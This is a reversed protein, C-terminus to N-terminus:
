EFGMENYEEWMQNYLSTYESNDDPNYVPDYIMVISMPFPNDKHNIQTNNWDIHKEAVWYAADESPYDNMGNTDIYKDESQIWYGYRGNTQYTLYKISWNYGKTIM